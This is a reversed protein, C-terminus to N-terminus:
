DTLLSTLWTLDPLPWDALSFINSLSNSNTLWPWHIKPGNMLVCGPDHLIHQFTFITNDDFYPKPTFDTFHKLEWAQRCSSKSQEAGPPVPNLEGASLGDVLRNMEEVLNNEVANSQIARVLCVCLVLVGQWVIDSSLMALAKSFCLCSM